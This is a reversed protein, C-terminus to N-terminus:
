VEGAVHGRLIRLGPRHGADAAEAPLRWLDRRFAAMHDAQARSGRDPGGTSNLARRRDSLDPMSFLHDIGMRWRIFRTVSCVYDTANHGERRTDGLRRRRGPPTGGGARHAGPLASALPALARDLGRCRFARRRSAMADSADVEAVALVRVRRGSAESAGVHRDVVWPTAQKSM